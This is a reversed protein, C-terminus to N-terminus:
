RAGEGSAPRPWKEPEAPQHTESRVCVVEALEKSKLIEAMLKCTAEAWTEASKDKQHAPGAACINAVGNTLITITITAQSQVGVSETSM